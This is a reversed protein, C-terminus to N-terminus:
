RPGELRRAPLEDVVAGIFAAVATVSELEEVM